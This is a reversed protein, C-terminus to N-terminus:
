GKNHVSFDGYEFNLKEILAKTRETEAKFIALEKTREHKIRRAEQISLDLSQITKTHDKM